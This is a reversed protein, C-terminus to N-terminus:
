MWLGSDYKRREEHNSLVRHAESVVKFKEEAAERKKPDTQRDPHTELALKRYAAKIENATASQPVGLVKYYEKPDSRRVHERAYRENFRQTHENIADLNTEPSFLCTLKEPLVQRERSEHETERGRDSGTRSEWQWQFGGRSFRGSPGM